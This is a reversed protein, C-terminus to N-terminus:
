PGTSTTPPAPAPITGAVDVVGTVYLKGAPDDSYKAVM